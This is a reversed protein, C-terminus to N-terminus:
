KGKKLSAPVPKSGIAGKDNMASLKASKTMFSMLKLAIPKKM